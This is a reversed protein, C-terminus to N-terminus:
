MDEEVYTLEGEVPLLEGTGQQGSGQGSGPIIPPCDLGSATTFAGVLGDDSEEEISVGLSELYKFAESELWAAYDADGFSQRTSSSTTSTPGHFSTTIQLDGLRKSESRVDGTTRTIESGGVSGGGRKFYSAALYQLARLVIRRNPFNVGRGAVSGRPDQLAADPLRERIFDVAGQFLPNAYVADASPNSGILDNIGAFVLQDDANTPVILDFM